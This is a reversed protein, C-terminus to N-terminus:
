DNKSFHQRSNKMKDSHHGKLCPPGFVFTKFITVNHKCCFLHSPSDWFFFPIFNSSVLPVGSQFSSTVSKKIPGQIACPFLLLNFFTINGLDKWRPGVKVLFGLYHSVIESLGVTFATERLVPRVNM